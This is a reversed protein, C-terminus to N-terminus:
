EEKMRDIVDEYTEEAPSAPGGAPGRVGPPMAGTPLSGMSAEGRHHDTLKQKHRRLQSSLKEEVLDLAAYMDPSEAKAVFPAHGSAAAVVEVAHLDHGVEMTVEVKTLRGFIKEVKEIKERAYTKMAETVGVHRGTILVRM